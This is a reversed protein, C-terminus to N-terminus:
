ALFIDFMYFQIVGDVIIDIHYFLWGILLLIYM